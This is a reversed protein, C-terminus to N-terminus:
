TAPSAPAAMFAPASIYSCARTFAISRSDRCPSAPQFIVVDRPESQACSTKTPVLPYVPATVGASCLLIMGIPDNMIVVSTNGPASACSNLGRLRM